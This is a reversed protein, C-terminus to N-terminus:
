TCLPHRPLSNCFRFLWDGPLSRVLADHGAWGQPLLAFVASGAGSMRGDLGHEALLDLAQTVQPCLAQASALLDNHGWQCGMDFATPMTVTGRDPNLRAHRFVTATSLSAAPKIIVLRSRPLDVPTLAEGIGEVWANRGGIFFPVDAGLRVGIRALEDRDLQLDWLRNLALLTTAADSSGGGLGAGTPINKEIRIHVGDPCASAQKLAHAARLCLDDSPLPQGIDERTLLGDARKEFHLTDQWDVLVFLSQLLHFGDDRRGIVHLFLNIKAPAPVAHLSRM